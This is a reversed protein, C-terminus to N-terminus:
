FNWVDSGSFGLQVGYQTRTETFLERIKVKNQVFSRYNTYGMFVGVYWGGVSSDGLMRGLEIQSDVSQSNSILLDIDTAIRWQEYRNHFGLGLIGATVNGLRSVTVTGALNYQHYGLRYSFPGSVLSQYGVKFETMQLEDAVLTSSRETSAFIQGNILSSGYKMEFAPFGILSNRDGRSSALQNQTGTLFVQWPRLLARLGTRVDPHRTEVIRIESSSSDKAEVLQLDIERNGLQPSVINRSRTTDSYFGYIEVYSGDESNQQHLLVRPTSKDQVQQVVQANAWSRQHVEPSPLREYLTLGLELSFDETPWDGNVMVISNHKNALARIERDFPRIKSLNQRKQLKPHQIRIFRQDPIESAGIFSMASQVCIKFSEEEAFPLETKKDRVKLSCHSVRKRYPWPHKPSAVEVRGDGLSLIIQYSGPRQKAKELYSDPYFNSDLKLTESLAGAEDFVRISFNQGENPVLSLPIQQTDWYPWKLSQLDLVGQATWVRDNRLFFWTTAVPGTLPISPFEFMYYERIIEPADAARVSHAAFQCIFAIAIILVRFLM